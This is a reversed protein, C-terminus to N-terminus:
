LIQKDFSQEPPFLLGDYWNTRRGTDKVPLFGLLASYAPKERIILGYDGAVRYAM